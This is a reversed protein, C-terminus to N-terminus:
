SPLGPQRVDDTGAQPLGMEKSQAVRDFAHHQRKKVKIMPCWARWDWTAPQVFSAPVSRALRSPNIGDPRGLLLRELNTKRMSLPRRREDDGDLAM